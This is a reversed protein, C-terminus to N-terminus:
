RIQVEMEQRGYMNEREKIGNEKRDYREDNKGTM